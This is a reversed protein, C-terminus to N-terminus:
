FTRLSDISVKRQCISKLTDKLTRNEFIMRHEINPNEKFKSKFHEQINLNDFISQIEISSIGKFFSKLIDTLQRKLNPM